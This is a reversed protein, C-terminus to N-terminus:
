ILLLGIPVLQGKLNVFHLFVLRGSSFAFFLIPFFNRSIPCVLLFFLPVRQPGIPVAFQWTVHNWAGSVNTRDSRPPLTLDM